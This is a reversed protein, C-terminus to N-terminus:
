ASAEEKLDLEGCRRTRQIQMLQLSANASQETLRICCSRSYFPVPFFLRPRSCLGLHRQAKCLLNCPPVLRQVPRSPFTSSALLLLLLPRSLSSPWAQCKGPKHHSRKSDQSVTHVKKANAERAAQGSPFGVARDIVLDNMGDKSLELNESSRFIREWPM